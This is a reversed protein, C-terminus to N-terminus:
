SSRSSKRGGRRSRLGGRVAGVQRIARAEPFNLSAFEGHYKIAARDYAKAAEIESRFTGLWIDKNNASISAGWSRKYPRRMVGKFRSVAGVLYKGRNQCNQAPTALRLNAKRNDLGNGNIHDVYLEDPARMVVRHMAVRKQRRKSGTAKAMRIAYFTGGGTCTYWNYRALAEYDEPDVIAYKGRTLPILRFPYGYRLKRWILAVRVTVRYCVMPVMVSMTFSLKKMAKEKGCKQEKIKL